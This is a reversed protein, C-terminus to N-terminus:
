LYDPSLTDDDAAWRYYRARSLRVVENFNANAGINEDQRVYRVRSDQNATGRCLEETGDTSANDSIVLEFDGFTQGLHSEIAAGLFDAGNYVPIGISVEPIRSGAM